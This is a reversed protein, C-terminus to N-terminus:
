KQEMQDVHMDKDNRQKKPALKDIQKDTGKNTQRDKKRDTQREIQRDTGAGAM